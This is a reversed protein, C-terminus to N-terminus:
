FRPAEFDLKVFSEAYKFGARKGLMEALRRAGEGNRSVAQSKHKTIALLKKDITGTIDIFEEGSEFNIFYLSKVKHPELGEEEFSFANKALPYIADMTALGAARHDSHNVFGRRSYLFAPDTTVVIDPKLKRIYRVIDRKLSRDAVLETDNYTLFFVDALGLIKGAEKQESRRMEILQKRTVNPDLSGKGGDTCILYYCKAGEKAWKAFTGGAGFDLDDPHACVGLVVMKNNKAM